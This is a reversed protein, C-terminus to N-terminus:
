ISVNLQSEDYFTGDPTLIAWKVENGEVSTSCQYTDNRGVPVAEPAELVLMAVALIILICKYM